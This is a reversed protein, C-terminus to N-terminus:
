LRNLQSTFPLSRQKPHVFLNRQLLHQMQARLMTNQHIYRGAFCFAPQWSRAIDSKEFCASRRL